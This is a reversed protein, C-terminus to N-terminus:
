ATGPPGGTDLLVTVAPQRQGVRRQSGRRSVFAKTLILKLHRWGDRWTRLKPEGGLRRRYTIPVEVIGLNRVAAEIVFESASEMGPASLELRSLAPRRIARLGCHADSVGSRFFVNLLGTLLPNGVHRHLWPMAGPEMAPNLRNGMVLDVDDGMADILLPISGFDYTGDADGLVVIRGRAEALGRICARGYGRIPEDVVRAGALRAERASGDASGNDVVIVEGILGARTLGAVAEQVTAGVATEENLCPMVVSVDLDPGPAHFLSEGLLYPTDPLSGVLRSARM